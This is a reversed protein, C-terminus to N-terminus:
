SITGIIYFSIWVTQTGNIVDYISLTISSSTTASVSMWYTSTYSNCQIAEYNTFTFPLNVTANGRHYYTAMTTLTCSVSVVNWCELRGDSWQRYRWGSKRGTEVICPTDANFTYTTVITEGVPADNVSTLGLAEFQQKYSKGDSDLPAYVEFEVGVQNSQSLNYHIDIFGENSGNKTYRIKDIGLSACDSNEDMFKLSNYVLMFNIRHTEAGNNHYRRTIFIPIIAGLAGQVDYSANSSTPTFQLVRYWGSSSLTAYARRPIVDTTEHFVTKKGVDLQNDAQSKMLIGLGGNHRSNLLINGSVGVESEVSSTQFSDIVNIRIDWEDGGDLSAILDSISGSYSGLSQVTGNTWTSSSKLKYDIRYKAENNNSVPSVAFDFGIDIQESDSDNRDCLTLTFSPNSYAVVSFTGTSVTKLGRSDTVTVSYSNSGNNLLVDTTFSSSTYSTGNVSTLYSAITAGQQGSATITFALRSRSQVYVGWSSATANTDSYSVSVTPALSQPVSLTITISSTGVVTNGNYTTCTLTCTGTSANPIQTALTTAPTWSVSGASTKTAITGTTSGFKYTITDTYTNVYRTINITQATGLTGNSTSLKSSAPQWVAYLTVTTYIQYDTNPQYQASTASASTAWGLFNYGARTPITASLTVSYGAWHSQTSPAGTGGNANYYVYATQHQWVAYLTKTNYEGGETATYLQLTGGSAYSASTSGSSSGWGLFNFYTRSPKTSSITFTKLVHPTTSSQVLGSPAGTGGNANYLLRAYYVAM